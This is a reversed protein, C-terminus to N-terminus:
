MLPVVVVKSGSSPATSSTPLSLAGIKGNITTLEADSTFSGEYPGGTGWNVVLTHADPYFVRLGNGSDPDDYGGHQQLMMPRNPCLYFLNNNIEGPLWESMAFALCGALDSDGPIRGAPITVADDVIIISRHATITSGPPTVTFTSSFSILQNLPMDRTFRIASTPLVAIDNDHFYSGCYSFTTAEVKYIDTQELVWASNDVYWSTMLSYGNYAHVMRATGPGQGWVTPFDQNSGRKNEVIWIKDNLTTGGSATVLGFYYAADYTQAGASSACVFALVLAICLRKM